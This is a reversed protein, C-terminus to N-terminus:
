LRVIPSTHSCVDSFSIYVKFKAEVLIRRKAILAELQKQLDEVQEDLKKLEKQSTTAM